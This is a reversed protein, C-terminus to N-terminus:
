YETNARRYYNENNENKADQVSAFSIGLKRRCREHGKAAQVITFLTRLNRRCTKTAQGKLRPEHHYDKTRRVSTFNNGLTM